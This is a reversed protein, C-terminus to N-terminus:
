SRSPAYLSANRSEKSIFARYNGFGDLRDASTTDAHDVIDFMCLVYPYEERTNYKPLLERTYRFSTMLPAVIRINVAGLLMPSPGIAMFTKDDQRVRLM